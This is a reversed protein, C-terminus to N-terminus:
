ADCAHHAGLAALSASTERFRAVVTPLIEMAVEPHAGLFSKFEWSTLCLCVTKEEAIVDATRPFGDIVALEGMVDGPGNSSIEVTAHNENTKVVRVKGSIIIFLGIGEEGQKMLFDGTKFTRETCINSLGKIYHRGLHAFLRVNSIATEKNIM